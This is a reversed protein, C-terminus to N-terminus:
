NEMVLTTNHYFGDKQQGPRFETIKARSCTVAGPCCPDPHTLLLSGERPLAAVLTRHDQEPLLAYRLVWRCCSGPLLSHLVGAEDRCLARPKCVMEVEAPPLSKGNIRYRSETGSWDPYLM